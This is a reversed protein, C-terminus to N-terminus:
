DKSLSAKPPQPLFGLENSAYHSQLALTGKKQNETAWLVLQLINCIYYPCCCPPKAEGKHAADLPTFAHLLFLRTDNSPSIGDNQATHSLFLSNDAPTSM